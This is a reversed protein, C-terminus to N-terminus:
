KKAAAAAVTEQAEGANNKAGAAAADEEEGGEEEEEEEQYATYLEKRTEELWEETIVAENAVTHRDRTAIHRHPHPPRRTSM